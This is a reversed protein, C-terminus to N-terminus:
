QITLRMKDAKQLPDWRFNWTLKCGSLMTLEVILNGKKTQPGVWKFISSPTESASIVEAPKPSYMDGFAAFRLKWSGPHGTKTEFTCEYGIVWMLITEKNDRCLLENLYQSYLNKAEEIIYLDINNILGRKKYYDLREVNTRKDANIADYALNSIYNAYNAVILSLASNKSQKVISLIYHLLMTEIDTETLQQIKLLISRQREIKFREETPLHALDWIDQLLPVAAWFERPTDLLLDRTITEKNAESTLRSYYDVIPYVLMWQPSFQLALLTRKENGFTYVYGPIYGELAKTVTGEVYNLLPIWESIELATTEYIIFENAKSRHVINIHNPYNATGISDLDYAEKLSLLMQSGCACNCGGYLLTRVFNSQESEYVRTKACVKTLANDAESLFRMVDGKYQAWLPDVNEKKLKLWLKMGTRIPLDFKKCALYVSLVTLPETNVNILDKISDFSCGKEEPEITESLAQAAKALEEAAKKEAARQKVLEWETPEKPKTVATTQPPVISKEGTKAKEEQKKKQEQLERLQRDAEQLARKKAEELAKEKDLQEQKKALAQLERLAKEEERNRNEAERQQKQGLAKREREAKEADDRQKAEAARQDRQRKQELTQREREATEADSRQKAEAARQDRQRKQELTQREREAKEADDRQKSEAARQERQRKQESAKQERELKVKAERQERELARQEREAKEAARRSEAQPLEKERASQRQQAAEAREESSPEIIGSLQMAAAWSVSPPTFSLEPIEIEFQGGSMEFAELQADTHPVSYERALALLEKKRLSGRRRPRCSGVSLDRDALLQCLQEYSLVGM